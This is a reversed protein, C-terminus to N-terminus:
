HLYQYLVFSFGIAASIFFLVKAKFKIGTLVWLICNILVIAAAAHRSDPMLLSAAYMSLLLLLAAGTGLPLVMGRTKRAAYIVGANCIFFCGAIAIQLVAPLKTFYIVLLAGALFALPLFTVFLTSRIATRNKAAATGEPESAEQGGTYLALLFDCYASPLLKNEKWYIIEQIIIAKRQQEM